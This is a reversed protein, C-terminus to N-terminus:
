KFSVEDDTDDSNLSEEDEDGDGLSWELETSTSAPFTKLQFISLLTYFM